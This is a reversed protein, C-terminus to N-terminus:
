ISALCYYRVHFANQEEISPEYSGLVKVFPTRKSLDVSISGRKSFIGYGGINHEIEYTMYKLKTEQESDVEIFDYEDEIERPDACVATMVLVLLALMQM